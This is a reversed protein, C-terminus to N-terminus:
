FDKSTNNKHRYTMDKITMNIEKQVETIKRDYLAKRLVFFTISAALNLVAIGFFVYSVYFHLDGDFAAVLNLIGLFLFVIFVGLFIFGAVLFGTRKKHIELAEQKLRTIKDQYAM